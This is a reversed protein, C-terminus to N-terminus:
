KEAVPGLGSEATAQNRTSLVPRWDDPKAIRTIGTTPYVFEQGFNDGPHFWVHIAEPSDYPREEFTIGTEEAPQLQYHRITLITTILRTRDGNWIEVTTRNASGALQFWYTGAPLVMGPVEVAETFEFKTAKNWQDAKATSSALIASAIVLCFAIIQLKKSKM